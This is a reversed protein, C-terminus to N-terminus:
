RGAARRDDVEQCLLLEDFADGEAPELSSHFSTATRPGSTRWSTSCVNMSSSCSVILDIRNGAANNAAMTRTAAAQPEDVVDLAGVADVAAAGDLAAEAAAM